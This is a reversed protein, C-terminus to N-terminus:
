TLGTVPSGELLMETLLDPPLRAARSGAMAWVSVKRRQVELGGQRPTLHGRWDETHAVTVGSINDM